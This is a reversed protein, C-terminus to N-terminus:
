KKERKFFHFYCFILLAIAAFAFWQFAYGKHRDIWTDTYEPLVRVLKEDSELPSRLLVLPQIETKFLESFLRLDLNQWVRDSSKPEVKSLTFYEQSPRKLLGRIVVTGQPNEFSRYETRDISWPTWGRNVLIRRESGNIILPTIVNLGSRGNIIINDILIQKEFEYTGEVFANRYVDNAVSLELGALDLAPMISRRDYAEKIATKEQGRDLQWLGLNVFVIMGVLTALAPLWKYM